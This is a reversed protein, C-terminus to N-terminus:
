CKIDSHYKSIVGVGQWVLNQINKSIPDRDELMILQDYLSFSIELDEIRAKNVLHMNWQTFRFTKLSSDELTVRLTHRTDNKIKSFIFDIDDQAGEIYQLFYDDKFCLFGSITLKKNTAIASQYITSIDDDSLPRTAKSLYLIAKNDM